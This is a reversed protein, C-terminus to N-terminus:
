VMAYESFKSITGLEMSSLLDGHETQPQPLQQNTLLFSYLEKEDKSIEDKQKQQEEIVTNHQYEEFPPNFVIPLSPQHM